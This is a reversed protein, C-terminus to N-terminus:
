GRLLSIRRPSYSTMDNVYLSLLVPSILESQTVGGRIVGRSTTATQFSTEFWRGWLYSSITHLIYSPFNLLTLKYLLGDICVTNFDKAADFFLAVTLCKEDFNRIIREVHRALQRSTSHRPRFRFHEDRMLGRMSVVHLIRALLM